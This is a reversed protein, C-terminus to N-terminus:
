INFTCHVIFFGDLSKFIDFQLFLYVASMAHYKLPRFILFFSLFCLSSKKKARCGMKDLCSFTKVKHCIDQM